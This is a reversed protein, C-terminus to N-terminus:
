LNVLTKINVFRRKCNQKGALDWTYKTGGDEPEDQSSENWGYALLYESSAVQRNRVHFGTHIKVQTNPNKIVTQLEKLSDIGTARSFLEHYYNATKGPNQKWDGYGRDEFRMNTFSCPLHLIIPYSERISLWVVLHDAWSAGGSVLVPQFPLTKLKASCHQYMAEMTSLTQFEKPLRRGSTGIVSVRTTM